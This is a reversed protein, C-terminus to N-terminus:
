NAGAAQLLAQIQGETAGRGALNDSIQQTTWGNMLLQQVAYVGQQAAGEPTVADQMVPSAPAAERNNSFMTDYMSAAKKAEEEATQPNLGGATSSYVDQVFGIRSKDPPSPTAPSLAGNAGITYAQDGVTLFNDKPDTAKMKERELDLQAQQYPSLPAQNANKWKELSIQRQLARDEPNVPTGAAQQGAMLRSQLDGQTSMWAMTFKQAAAPDSPYIKGAMSLGKALNANTFVDEPIDDVGKTKAFYRAEDIYGDGALEFIKLKENDRRTVDKQALEDQKIQMDVQATRDATLTKSRADYAQTVPNAGTALNQVLSQSVM